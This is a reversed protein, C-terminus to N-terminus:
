AVDNDAEMIDVARFKGGTMREVQIARLPPLNGKSQWHTVASRDVGLRKAMKSKSGFWEIIEEIM